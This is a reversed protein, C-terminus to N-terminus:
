NKFFTYRRIEPSLILKTNNLVFSDQDYYSAIKDSSFVLEKLGEGNQIKYNNHLAPGRSGLILYDTSGIADMIDSKMNSSDFSSLYTIKDDGVNVELLVVPVTSSSSHDMQINIDTGLLLNIEDGSDYIEVSVGNDRACDLISIMRFYDDTNQPQPIYLTRVMQTQFSKSLSSIHTTTYETLVFADIRHCNLKNLEKFACNFASYYGPSMDILITRKGNTALFINRNDPQNIYSIRIKETNQYSATGICAFFVLVACTFPIIATWQHKFKLLLCIFLVLGLICAGVIAFDYDLSILANDYASFKRCFLISIHSLHKLPLYLLPGILPVNMFALYLPTLILMIETPLALVLSSLVAFVSIEKTFICLVIILPLIACLSTLISTVLALLPKILLKWKSYYPQFLEFTFEQFRPMCLLIGFTAAFSMWFGADLVAFPTIGLILAGAASLSTLADAEHSAMMSFYVMLLMLVSRTASMSFGTLALYFVALFSLIVARAKYPVYMQTLIFALAGFLITMHTGSIALIHSAGVRRFDRTIDKPVIRPNGLLLSACVGGDEDGLKYIIKNSLTNNIVALVSFINKDKQITVTFDDETDSKLAVIIGDALMMDRERYAGICEDFEDVTFNGLIRNGVTLNGLYECELNARFYVDEGDLKSVLVTYESIGGSSYSEELVVCEFKHEDGIDLGYNEKYIIDFYILSIIASLTILGFCLTAYTAKNVSLKKFVGLLLFILFAAFSIIAIIIKIQPIVFFCIVSFAIFLMFSSFLHHNKFIQM